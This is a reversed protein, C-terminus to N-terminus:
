GLRESRHTLEPIGGPDDLEIPPDLDVQFRRLDLKPFLKRVVQVQQDSADYDHPLTSLFTL